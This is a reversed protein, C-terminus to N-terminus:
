EESEQKETLELVEWLSANMMPGALESSPECKEELFKSDKTTKQSNEGEEKDKALDTHIGITHLKQVAKKNITGFMAGCITLPCQSAKSRKDAKLSTALMSAGATKSNLIVGNFCCGPEFARIKHLMPTVKLNKSLMKM